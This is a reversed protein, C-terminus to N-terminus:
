AVRRDVAPSGAPRISGEQPVDLRYTLLEAMVKLRAVVNPAMARPLAAVPRIVGDVRFRVDLTAPTPEFHVDSAGVRDAEALILDVVRVARDAGGAAAANLQASLNTHPADTM